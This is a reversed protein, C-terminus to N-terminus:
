QQINRKTEARERYTCTSKKDIFLHICARSARYPKATAEIGHENLTGWIESHVVDTGPGMGVEGSM